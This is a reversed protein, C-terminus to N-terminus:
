RLLMAEHEAVLKASIVNGERVWQEPDPVPSIFLCLPGGGHQPSFPREGIYRTRCNACVLVESWTDANTYIKFLDVQLAASECRALVEAYSTPAVRSSDCLCPM